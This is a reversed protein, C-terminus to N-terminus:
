GEFDDLMRDLAMSMKEETEYTGDQIAQRIQAVRDARIDPMEHIRSVMDAEPSIDLQDTQNVQSAPRPPEAAKVRHPANVPQPGHVSAPGHIQM